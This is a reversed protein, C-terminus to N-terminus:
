CVSLPKSLHRIKPQELLTKVITERRTQRNSLAVLPLDHLHKLGSIDLSTFKMWVAVYWAAYDYVADGLECVRHSFPVLYISDNIPRPKLSLSQLPRGPTLSFYKWTFSLPRRTAHLHSAENAQETTYHLFYLPAPCLYQSWEQEGRYNSINGERWGLEEYLM